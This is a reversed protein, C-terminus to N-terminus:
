GLDDGRGIRDARNIRDTGGGGVLDIDTTSEIGKVRGSEGGVDGDVVWLRMRDGGKRIGGRDLTGDVGDRTRVSIPNPDGTLELVRDRM